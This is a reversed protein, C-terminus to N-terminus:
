VLRGDNAESGIHADCFKKWNMGYRRVKAELDNLKKNVSELSLVEPKAAEIPKKAPEAKKVEPVAEIEVKEVKKAEAKKEIKESPM